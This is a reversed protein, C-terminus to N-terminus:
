LASRQVRHAVPPHYRHHVPDHLVHRERRRARHRDGELGHAAVVHDDVQAAAGICEVGVEDRARRRDLDAVLDLAPLHTPRSPLEPLESAGWKCRWRPSAFEGSPVSPIGHTNSRNSSSPDPGTVSPPAPARAPLAGPVGDAVSAHAAAPFHFRSIEALPELNWTRPATSPASCPALAHHMQTRCGARLPGAGCRLVGCASCRCAGVGSRLVRLIGRPEVATPAGPSREQVDTYFTNFLNRIGGLFTLGFARYAGRLDLTFIDGRPDLPYAIVEEVRRGTACTSPRSAASARDGHRHRQTTLSLAARPGSEWTTGTSICTTPRSTSCAPCWPRARASM